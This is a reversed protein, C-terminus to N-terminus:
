SRHWATEKKGLADFLREGVLSPPCDYLQLRSACLGRLRLQGAKYLAAVITAPLRFSLSLGLLRPSLAHGAEM